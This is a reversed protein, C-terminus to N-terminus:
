TRGGAGARTALAWLREREEEGSLARFPVIIPQGRNPWFFFHAEGREVREIERWGIRSGRAANDARIGRRDAVLRTPAQGLRSEEFRRRMGMPVLVYRMLLVFGAVAFHVMMFASPSTGRATAEFAMWFGLALNLAFFVWLATDRLGGGSKARMMAAYDDVTLDYVAEVSGPEGRKAM